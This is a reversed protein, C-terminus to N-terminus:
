RTAEVETLFADVLKRHKEATLEEQVVKGAIGMALAVVDNRLTVQAKDREMAIDEKARTLIEQAERRARDRMESGIRQGEAVAAQIRERSEAEIKRLHGEYEQKLEAVSTKEAEIREMEARIKERRERMPPYIIAMFAGRVLFFFVAFSIAHALLQNWHVFQDM